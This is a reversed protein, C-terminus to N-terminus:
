RGTGARVVSVLKELNVKKLLLLFDLDEDTHLLDKIIRILNEKTDTSATNM